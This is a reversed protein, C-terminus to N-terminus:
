QAIEKVGEVMKGDKNRATFSITLKRELSDATMNFKTLVFSSDVQLLGQFIENKVTEEEVNKGLLNHFNVGENTNNFWEGKNTGLVCECKQLILEDDYILQNIILDGDSNLKLSKM